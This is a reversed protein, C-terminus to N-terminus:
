VKKTKKTPKKTAKKTKVEVTEETPEEVKKEETAVLYPNLKEVEVVEGAKHLGSNDFYAVKVVAKM